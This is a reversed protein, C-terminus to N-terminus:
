LRSLVHDCHNTCRDLLSHITKEHALAAALEIASVAMGDHLLTFAALANLLKGGALVAGAEGIRRDLPPRSDAAHSGVDLSRVPILPVPLNVGQLRGLAPAVSEFFGPVGEFVGEAFGVRVLRARSPFTHKM